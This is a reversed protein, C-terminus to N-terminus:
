QDCLHRRRDGYTIGTPITGCWQICHIRDASEPDLGSAPETNGAHRPQVGEDTRTRMM